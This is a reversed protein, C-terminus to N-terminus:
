ARSGIGRVVGPAAVLDAFADRDARFVHGYRDSTTTISEHGMTRQIATLSHGDAIAWSAFTHRLDHIRPRKGEGVEDWVVRPRGRGERVVRRRDGAFAHVAPTWVGEHFTPHRVPGGRTNTFLFERPGRGEVLEELDDRCATPLAVTRNSRTTKPAGLRHGAGDTHKWARRVQITRAEFDVDAVTLATAESWRMGTGALLMVLPQWRAPVLEHLRAFEDRTLFTMEPREVRPLKVGKAVNTGVLGDRVASALAASLLSQRNRISKASLGRRQLGNVWAAVADYSLATVPVPGLQPVIDRECMRRYDRRTGEEVGTLHTIHHEVQEGVTRARAADPVELARLALEPGASELLAKWRRAGTEDTFPVVRRRGDQRWYVRWRTEGSALTREELGAM